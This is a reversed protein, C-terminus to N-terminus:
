MNGKLRRSKLTDLIKQTCTMGKRRDDDDEKILLYELAFPCDKPIGSETLVVDGDVTKYGIQRRVGKPNASFIAWEEGTTNCLLKSGDMWDSKLYQCRTCISAKLCITRRRKFDAIINAMNAM